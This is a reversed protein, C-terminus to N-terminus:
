AETHRMDASEPRARALPGSRIDREHYLLRRGHRMVQDLFCSLPYLSTQQLGADPHGEVQEQGQLM